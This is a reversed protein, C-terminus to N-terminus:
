SIQKFYFQKNYLFLNPMLYGVCTSIGYVWCVFVFQIIQFLVTKVTLSRVVALGFQNFYFQKSM